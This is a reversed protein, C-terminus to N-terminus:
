PNRRVRVGNACWRDGDRYADVQIYFDDEGGYGAGISVESLDLTMSTAPASIAGDAVVSDFQGYVRIRYSEAGPVETWFITQLGNAITETPAVIAVTCEADGEGAAPGWEVPGEGEVVLTESAGCLNYGLLESGVTVTITYTGPGIGWLALDIEDSLVDVVMRAYLLAGDEANIAIIAANAGEVASWRVTLMRERVLELTLGFDPCGTLEECPPCTRCAQVADAPEEGICPPADAACTVVLTLSGNLAPHDAWVEVEYVGSLAPVTVRDELTEGGRLVALEQGQENRVKVVFPFSYPEGTSPEAIVLTTPCDQAEFSFFQPASQPPINVALPEDFVLPTAAIPGRGQLQLAFTGLSGNAGGIMISYVGSEPLFLSLYSDQPHAARANLRSSALTSRDPALLDVVPQLGGSLSLADVRVLDGATGSFSFLALPMEATIAGAASGGYSLTGGQAVSRGAPLSLLVLLALGIALPKLVRM